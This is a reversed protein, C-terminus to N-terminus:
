PKTPRGKVKIPPRPPITAELAKTKKELVFLSHLLNEAIDMVINMDQVDPRHARHAAASGADLAVALYQRNKSSLYGGDEMAKLNAPFSGNDGVKKIMSTEILARSGMMALSLSDAQLAAYVEKLLGRVEQPLQWQWEPLWRSAPPPFVNVEVGENESFWFKRRLVVAACGCCQLMEYNTQWFFGQEDDNGKDVVLKLLQHKTTQRCENCHLPELDPKVQKAVM